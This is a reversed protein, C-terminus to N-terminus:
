WTSSATAAIVAALMFTITAVLSRGSFRSMGCVGHGSTCGNAMRSGLGVMLGALVILWTSAEVNLQPQRVLMASLGAGGLIGSLFALRIIGDHGRPSNLLGDILGSIGAVRGNSLLFAAFSVGILSGGALGWLWDAQM